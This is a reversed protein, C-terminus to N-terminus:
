RSAKPDFADRVGDGFLNFALVTIVILVGPVFMFWPDVSFVGLADSLMKGWTPTPNQIGVGLFSLSAEYIINTPIVLTSYVLIPALLNPMLEKALIRNTGAGISRSADIFEKERLSLVQGRVIRAIYPWSFFGIIFILLVMRLALGSLGLFTPVSQFVVLLAISFLLVPFALFVDMARSLLTDIWGGFFGALLGLLVGVVLQLVTAALAVTLSIGAGYVTRALIDRGNRPEVGLWHQTSMGSLHGSPLSTDGSILATHTDTPSFGLAKCIFPGVIAIVFIVIIIVLGTMAARDRKLRRWALQGLSRGAIARESESLVEDGITSETDVEVPLTM